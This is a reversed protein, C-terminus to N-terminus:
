CRSPEKLIKLAQREIFDIGTSRKASAKWPLIFFDGCVGSDRMKFCFEKTLLNPQLGSSFDIRIDLGSKTLMDMIPGIHRKWDILINSDLLSFCKIGFDHYIDNIQQFVDKPTIPRLKRGELKPVACYSCKFPCGWRTKIAVYEPPDELLEIAPKINNAEPIEGIHIKDAGSTKAHIPCLSAYVGGLTIKAKPFIEKCIAVM